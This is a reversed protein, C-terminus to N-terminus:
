QQVYTKIQSELANIKQKDKKLNTEIGSALDIGDPQYKILDQINMPNIGGAILCAKELSQAKKLYHPVFSWDFNIGTGGWAKKSKNDILFADISNRYQDMVYLANENHHIVKWVDINGIEKVRQAFAPSENGHLQIVDLSATHITNQIFDFSENVFVGVIKKNVLPKTQSLWQKVNEPKVQRKSPSFVFGIYHAKSKNVTKVDELSQNGCYKIKM